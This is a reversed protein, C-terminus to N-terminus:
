ITYVAISVEDGYLDSHARYGPVTVFDSNQNEIIGGLLLSFLAWLETKGLQVTTSHVGTSRFKLSANAM